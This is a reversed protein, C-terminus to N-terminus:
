ALKVPDKSDLQTDIKNILWDTAELKRDFENDLQQCKRKVPIKPLDLLDQCSEM